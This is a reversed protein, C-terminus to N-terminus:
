LGNFIPPFVLIALDHHLGGFTDGVVVSLREDGVHASELLLRLELGRVRIAAPFRGPAPNAPRGSNVIRKSVKGVPNAGAPYLLSFTTHRGAGNASTKSNVLVVTIETFKLHINKLEASHIEFKSRHGATRNTKVNATRM